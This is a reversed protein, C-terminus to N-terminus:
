VKGHIEEHSINLSMRAQVDQWWTAFQTPLLIRRIHPCMLDPCAPQYPCVSAAPDPAGMRWLDVIADEAWQWGHTYPLLIRRLQPLTVMKAKLTAPTVVHTM